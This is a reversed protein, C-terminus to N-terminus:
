QLYTAFDPDLLFHYFALGLADTETLAVGTWTDRSITLTCTITPFGTFGYGEYNTGTAGSLWNDIEYVHWAKILNTDDFRFCSPEAEHSIAKFQSGAIQALYVYIVGETNYFTEYPQVIKTYPPETLVTASILTAIQNEISDSVALTTNQGFSLMPFILIFLLTRM